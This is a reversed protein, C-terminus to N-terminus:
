HLQRLDEPTDIEVEGGEFEITVVPFSAGEIIARAGKDGSIARLQDFSERPFIAPIGQVEAYSSVAITPSDAASFTATLTRLHDATLRPQDCGMLLVGTAEPASVSLARMGVDISGGMGQRWRDNHVSIVNHSKISRLVQEFDAGLVAIVPTAGAECAIRVARNLLTEGHHTLLQKPQGLRRSGGAALIIAAIPM